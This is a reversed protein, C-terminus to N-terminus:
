SADSAPDSQCRWLHAYRGDPRDILVSHPGDEVIRGKELVIIRDCDKVASLRHAIVFVTRGQCLRQMNRRIERESEYDLASTAEDFILVKPNTVLARAIAIRQRQGGSLGGGREALITDYAEPQELIFEHAAALKAARTVAEMPLSPDSLAINDRITRNFLVNEQLVVGIQRRLWATDVLALDVGDMLVRGGEPVYLRQILKTLTSKGSGSAGVIGVVQGATVELSLDKLVEPRDPRYRFTVHDFTVHGELTPMASRAAEAKRETPADLIDALREMSVRMQQVEQWLQALKLIPQAVRGAMMNFAVLQGITLDGEMVLKAGFWLTAVITFKSIFQAVQGAANSLSVVKFSAKVYSALQGEWRRQMQPEVAMAKLTEMATVTEVLFSQNESGWKFKEDLRKRIIPTVIASLLAYVPLTAIVIWTLMSSYSFMFALFVFAFLVDLWLNLAPGTLFNRITEIERVRAVTSGATRAGFYALPLNLLHGFLGAGLEVDVRSTTHALVYARLGGLLVEFISVVLLGLALVDLSSMGRHVLVKDIVVQFFLPSVLGMLQVFFSAALVEGLLKRYRVLAPVFWSFDFGRTAATLRERH